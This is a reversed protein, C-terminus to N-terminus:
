QSRGQPEPTLTVTGNSDTGGASCANATLTYRAGPVVVPVTLRYVNGQNVEGTTGDHADRAVEAGGTISLAVWKVDLRCSGGTYQMFVRYKGPGTIASTADWTLPHPTTDMQKPQWEGIPPADGADVARADADYRVHLERAIAVTDGTPKTPYADHQRTWAVEFQGIKSQVANVDIPRHAAAANNLATLWMQWRRRYFGDLLGAWQRNAYDQINPPVTWTTLLERADRELRDAEAPTTGWGRADALWPGLLFERRTGLLRDLDHILGLMRDGLQKVEAADGAAYAKVIQRHYRTGLDALVQRTVDALDYRYGDSGGCAPAAALLHGWADALAPLAYTEDTGTFARARQNPNLSPLACVASNVPGNDDIGHRKGKRVDGYVTALLGAWAARADPNDVGYRRAAYDGVWTAADIPGDHWATAFFCDWLAPNTQSGEPVAAIGSMRGAAPDAAAASPERATCALRGYLGTNGGFNDITGWLWPTGNFNRRSRWHEEHECYLDIVLLHDKDVADLMAPRPNAQWSQLVWTSGPSAAQMAAYIGRGVAPVDIGKTSGGEHFPDAAFFHAPGYLKAQSAYFAAAVKPFLPDTPDLMDPRKLGCWMGQAHVNAHPFRVKFDAPVIGYYGQLVPEIGLERMRGVIQKALATRDNVLQPSMPGGYSEMNSMFQWPQHAPLVLWRRVDLDSYGFPRLADIWVQEQGEIVLAQNVGHLALWDVEREWQPWHWNAMTYGHTCYNYAFRYRFPSRGDAATAPPLTTPLSYDGGNWSLEGRGDHELYHLLASATAMPTTGSLVVKGDRGAIRYADAGGADAPLAEVVFRDQQGPLTRAILGAIGSPDAWAASSPIAALVVAAWVSRRRVNTGTRTFRTTM